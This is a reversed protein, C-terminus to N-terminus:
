PFAARPHWRSASLAADLHCFKRPMAAMLDFRM